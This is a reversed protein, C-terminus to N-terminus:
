RDVSPIQYLPSDPVSPLRTCQPIQYVDEHSSSPDAVARVYMLVLRIVSASQPPSSFLHRTLRAFKRLATTTESVFRRMSLNELQRDFQVLAM